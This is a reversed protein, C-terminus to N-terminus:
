LSRYLLTSSDETCLPLLSCSTHACCGSVHLRYSLYKVLIVCINSYHYLFAVQVLISTDTDNKKACLSIGPMPCLTGGSWYASSLGEGLNSRVNRSASWVSGDLASTLLLYLHVEVRENSKMVDCLCIKVLLSSSDPCSLWNNPQPLKHRLFEEEVRLIDSVKEEQCHGFCGKPIM